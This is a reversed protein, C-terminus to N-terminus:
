ALYKKLPEWYMQNWGSALHEGQDEPFGTHEFVLRTQGGTDQLDFRVISYVGPSWNGARWAQVIRQGPVLEIQRGQIMGGFCTFAGGAERSIEAPAGGTFASFRKADTLADYVRQPPAKIVVEQHIPKAM